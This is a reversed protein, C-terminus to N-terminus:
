EGFAIRDLKDHIALTEPFPQVLPAVYKIVPLLLLCARVLNITSVRCRPAGLFQGLISCSHLLFQLLFQLLFWVKRGLRM